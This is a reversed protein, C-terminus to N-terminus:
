LGGQGAAGDSPPAPPLVIQNDHQQQNVQGHQFFWPHMATAPSAVPPVGFGASSNLMQQLALQQMQQLPAGAGAHQWQGPHAFPGFPPGHQMATLQAHQGGHQDLQHMHSNSHHDRELMAAQLQQIRREQNQVHEMLRRQSADAEQQAFRQELSMSSHPPMSLPSSATDFNVRRATQHIRRQDQTRREDPHPFAVTTPNGGRFLAESRQPHIRMPSPACGSIPTRGHYHSVSEAMVSSGRKERTHLHRIFTVEGDDSDVDVPAVVAAAAAAATAPEEPHSQLQQALARPNPLFQRVTLGRAKGGPAAGVIGADHTANRSNLWRTYVTNAALRSRLVIKYEISPTSNVGRSEMKFAILPHTDLGDSDRILGVERMVAVVRIMVDIPKLFSPCDPVGSIVLCEEVPHQVNRGGVSAAAAAKSPASPSMILSGSGLVSRGPSTHAALKAAKSPNRAPSEDRGSHASAAAAGADTKRKAPSPPAASSARGADGSSLLELQKIRQRMEAVIKDHVRTAEHAKAKVMAAQNAAAVSRREAEERAAEADALASAMASIAGADRSTLADGLKDVIALADIM